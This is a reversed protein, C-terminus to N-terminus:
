KLRKSTRRLPPTTDENTSEYVKISEQCNDLYELPLYSNESAPYGKWKILYEPEPIGSTTYVWRKGIVSEVEYEEHDDVLIPPPLAIEERPFKESTFYRKLRSINLTPHIQWATPLELTLATGEAKIASVAFPGVWRDQLKKCTSGPLKLGATSLAVLDGVQFPHVPSHRKASYAAQSLGAAKLHTKALLLNARLAALLSDVAPVETEELRIKDMPSQPNEGYNLEFPSFDTSPNVSSNYSFEAIWLWKIWDKGEAECFSRLYQQISKNAVETQGDTQPHLSTSMCLDSGFAKWLAQWFHGTFRSDRDSVIRDPLGHYKAVNHLFLEAVTAADTKEPCPACHIMKTLKDVFVVLHSLNSGRAKPFPGMFDM